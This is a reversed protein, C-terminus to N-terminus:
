YKKQLKHQETYAINKVNITHETIKVLKIEM